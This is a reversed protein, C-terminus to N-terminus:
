RGDHLVADSLRHIRRRNWAILVISPIRSRKMGLETALGEVTYPSYADMDRYGAQRAKRTASLVAEPTLFEAMLGHVQYDSTM